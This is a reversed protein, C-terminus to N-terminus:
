SKAARFGIALAFAFLTVGIVLACTVAAMPLMVPDALLRLSADEATPVLSQLYRLSFLLLALGGFLCAAIEGIAVPLVALAARDRQRLADAAKWIQSAQGTDVTVDWAQETDYLWGSVLALDACEECQELHATLAADWHGSQVAELIRSEHQCASTM